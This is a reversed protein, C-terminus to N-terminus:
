GMVSVMGCGAASAAMGVANGLGCSHASSRACVSRGALVRARSPIPTSPCVRGGPAMGSDPQNRSFRCSRVATCATRSGGSMNASSRKRMAASYRSSRWRMAASCRARTWVWRPKSEPPPSFTRCIYHSCGLSPAWARGMRLGHIDRTTTQCFAGLPRRKPDDMPDDHATGTVHHHLLSDVEAPNKNLNSYIDAVALHFM